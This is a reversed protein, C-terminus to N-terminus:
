SSHVQNYVSLIVQASQVWSFRAAQQPGRHQLTQRLTSNTLGQYMTEAIAHADYPDFYLGADGVIEPLSSTNSTAIVTGCALAEAVPHAFAEYLSPYVFLTAAQYLCPLEEEPIYPLPIVNSPLKLYHVLSFIKKRQIPESIGALVLKAQPAPLHQRLIKYANLLREINKRDSSYGGVYLIFQEPLNYRARVYEYQEQDPQQRFNESIGYPAIWIREEPYNLLEIIDQKLTQSITILADAHQLRQLKWSYGSNWRLSASPPLSQQPFKLPLLDYVTAVVRHKGFPLPPSLNEPETVSNYHYLDINKQVFAMPLYVTDWCWWWRGLCHKRTLYHKKLNLCFANMNTQYDSNSLLFTYENVGDLHSFLPLINRLYDGIGGFRTDTQLPHVDIAIRM